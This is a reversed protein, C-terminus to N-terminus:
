ESRNSEMKQQLPSVVVLHIAYRQSIELLNEELKIKLHNAFIMKGATGYKEKNNNGMMFSFTKRREKAAATPPSYETAESNSNSNNGEHSVDTSSNGHNASLITHSRAKKLSPSTNLAELQKQILVRLEYLEELSASAYKSEAITPESIELHDDGVPPSTFSRSKIRM